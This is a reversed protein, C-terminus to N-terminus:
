ALNMKMEGNVMDSDAIGVGEYGFFPKNLNSKTGSWQLVPHSGCGCWEPIKASRNRSQLRVWNGNSPSRISRGSATCGGTM